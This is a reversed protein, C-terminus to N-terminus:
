LGLRKLKIERIEEKSLSVDFWIEGNLEQRQKQYCRQCVRVKFSMTRHLKLNGPKTDIDWNETSYKWKHRIKCLLNM